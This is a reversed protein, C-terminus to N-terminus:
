ECLSYFLIDAAMTSTFIMAGWKYSSYQPKDMNGLKIKGFKSFAIYMTCFFTGLGILAYYIGLDNGLFNRINQLVIASKNPFIMFLIGLFLVGVLPVITAFWDIRKSLKQKEKM